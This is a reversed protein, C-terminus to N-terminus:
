AFTPLYPSPYFLKSSRKQLVNEFRKNIDHKFLFDKRRRGRDGCSPLAMKSMPPTNNEYIMDILSLDTDHYNRNKGERKSEIQCELFSPFVSTSPNSKVLASISLVRVRPPSGRCITNHGRKSRDPLADLTHTQLFLHHTYAHSPRDNM